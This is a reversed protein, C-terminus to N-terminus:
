SRETEGREMKIYGAKALPDWRFIMNYHPSIDKLRQILQSIPVLRNLDFILRVQLDLILPLASYLNSDVESHTYRALKRLSGGLSSWIVDDPINLGYEINVDLLHSIFTGSIKLSELGKKCSQSVYYGLNSLTFTGFSPSTPRLIGLDVFWEFFSEVFHESLDRRIFDKVANRMKLSALLHFVEDLKILNLFFGVKQRPTLSFDDCEGLNAFFVTHSNPIVLSNELRLINLWGAFRLYNRAVARTRMVGTTRVYKDLQPKIRNASTLLKDIFFDMDVSPSRLLEKCMLVFYTLRRAEGYPTGSGKM